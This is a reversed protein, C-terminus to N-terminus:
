QIQSEFSSLPVILSEPDGRSDLRQGPNEGVSQPETVSGQM